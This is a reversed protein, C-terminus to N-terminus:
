GPTRHPPADGLALAEGALYLSGGILIRPAPHEKAAKKMAPILGSAIEATVGGAQCAAVVDQAPQSGGRGSKFEVAILRRALGSFQSCWATVDKNPSFGAIIVLPREEREDMDALAHSLAKAAAENHGGDLWLEAGAKRAIEGLPGRTISQLRAPWTANAIGAAAASEPGQLVAAAAAAAGANLIQHPGLLGPAPLDWVRSEDEYILRGHQIYANYDRGWVFAPAGVKAAEDLIAAEADDVQNGVVVPVGFKCIGAKERAIQRLDTGLFEQHDLSVPTIVSLAPRAIVNTADFRGGLGVELILRDAPHESFLLLAAATTIEFFTIPEGFNAAECRAFAEILTKDDVPTSDLLIRENFNVLHPSTYIHVREGKTRAMEALYACTSGKGNTGAVHVTPPLHDQPNGLATLLRQLRGLSLDIKQPHLSALRVLADDLDQRRTSIAAGTAPWM